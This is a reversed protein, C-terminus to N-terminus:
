PIQVTSVVQQQYHQPNNGGNYTSVFTGYDTTGDFVNGFYDGIFTDTPVSSSARDPANLQPDWPDRSLRINHGIPKLNATYFQVSSNICYDTAGYPPLSRAYDPNSRDLALGAALAERTGRAPCALRRDYFNVSVTGDPAVALNPQFEDVTPSANDNVRIPATWHRGQDYSATLLINGFGTSKSEYAIYVPYHGGPSLHNGVAFTEEIGDEFTTNVYGAGTLAPVHVDSAAAFPGHWTVGGDKSYDMLVDVCCGGQEADYNILSTYVVGNPDLHPFLYTNNSTSNLTPLQV